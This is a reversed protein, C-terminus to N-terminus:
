RSMKLIQRARKEVPEDIMKGNLSAVGLGKKQAMRLAEIIAKANDIDEQSPTFCDHIPPIQEPHIVGKGDFGMAVIKKTEERLGQEDRVFCHDNIAWNTDEGVSQDFIKVFSGAKVMDPPAAEDARGGAAGVLVVGLM